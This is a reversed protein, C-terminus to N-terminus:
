TNQHGSVWMCLGRFINNLTRKCSFGAKACAVCFTKIALEPLPFSVAVGAKAGKHWALYLQRADVISKIQIFLFTQHSVSLPPTTWMCVSTNNVYLTLGKQKRQKGDDSRGLNQVNELCSLLVHNFWKGRSIIRTIPFILTILAYLFVTFFVLFM